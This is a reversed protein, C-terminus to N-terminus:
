VSRGGVTQMGLKEDIKSIVFSVNTIRKPTSAKAAVASFNTPCGQSEPEFTPGGVGVLSVEQAVAPATRACCVVEDAVV